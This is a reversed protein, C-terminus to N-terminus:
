VRKATAYDREVKKAYSTKCGLELLALYMARGWEKATHNSLTFERGSQTRYRM